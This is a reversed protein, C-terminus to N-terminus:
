TRPPMVSERVVLQTPLIIDSEGALPLKVAMEGMEAFPARVTTLPVILGEAYPMDDFGGVSYDYPVRKGMKKLTLIVDLAVEDTVGVIATCDLGAKCATRFNGASEVRNRSYAVDRSPDHPIGAAELAGLFGRYRATFVPEGERVGVFLFKRHGLSIMYNTLEVMGAENDYDVVAVSEPLDLRPRALAVLSTEPQQDFQDIIGSFTDDSMSGEMVVVIRSRQALLQSAMEDGSMGKFRTSFLRFNLHQRYAEEDVAAMMDAYTGGTIASTVLTVANPPTTLAKAHINPVYGLAKATSQVRERTAESIGPQGNLARSVSAVSVGAAKAIDRINLNGTKAPGSKTRGAEGTQNQSSGGQIQDAVIRRGNGRTTHTVPKSM